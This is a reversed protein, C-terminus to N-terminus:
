IPSIQTIAYFSDALPTPPKSLSTSSPSPRKPLMIAYFPDESLPAPRKSLPLYKKAKDHDYYKDQNPKYKHYIAVGIGAGIVGAGIGLGVKANDVPNGLCNTPKGQLKLRDNSKTPRKSPM